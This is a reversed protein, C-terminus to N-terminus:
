DFHGQGQLDYNLVYNLTGPAVVEVYGTATGHGQGHLDAYAGTGSLIVWNLKAEATACGGGENQTMQMQLTITGSEDELTDTTHVTRFCVGPGSGVHSANEVISGNAAFLGDSSWSGSGVSTPLDFYTVDFNFNLAQPPAASAPVAFAAVVVILALILVVRNLRSMPTTLLSSM